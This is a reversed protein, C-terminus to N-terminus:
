KYGSFENEKSSIMHFGETWTIPTTSIKVDSFKSRKNINQVHFM